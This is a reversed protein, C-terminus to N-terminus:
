TVQFRGTFFDSIPFKQAKKDGKERKFVVLLFTRFKIGKLKKDGKERKFVVLLFTRFKFGKLRKTETKASAHPLVKMVVHLM